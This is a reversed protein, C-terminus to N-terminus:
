HLAGLAESSGGGPALCRAGGEGPEEESGLHMHFLHRVEKWAAGPRELYRERLEATGDDAVALVTQSRTGYTGFPTDIPRVFVGSVAAEFEPGYGTDPLAQPDTELLRDDCLIGFLAEWPLGALSSESAPHLSGGPAAAAPPAATGNACPPRPQCADGPAAQQQQQQEQSSSAPACSKGEGSGSGNTAALTGNRLMARLAAKGELVKPWPDCLHANSMGYLGPALAKPEPTDGRNCLYGVEQLNGAILNFGAFDEATAAIASLYELPRSSTAAAAMAALLAHQAISGDSAHSAIADVAPPPVVWDATLAGRTPADPLVQSEIERYNTLFAFRGNEGVALWTGGAAADRGALLSPRDEWFHAPLAPRDQLEDRNFLLLLRLGAPLEPGFWLFSLCM